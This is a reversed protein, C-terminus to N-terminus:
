KLTKRTNCLADSIRAFEAVGLTEGRVKEDLACQTLIEMMTQRTFEGSFGASLGNLLTKRRQAFSARVVRFFLAEDLPTVPKEDYVDMGVAASNVKPKPYFCDSPVDFLIKPRTYYNVFVTFESYDPTGPRACLREAAEKQVMVTIRKFVGAGILAAIAPTTINYPLCACALVTRDPFAKRMLLPLDTKLADAHRIDINEYGALTEQLVPLLTGDLELSVVGLARGALQETLVGLGPGIELVGSEKDAGSLLAMREPVWDAILFNQGMAKSFNFSHRSLLEKIQVLDTLVM